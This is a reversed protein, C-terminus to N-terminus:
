LSAKEDSSFPRSVSHINQRFLGCVKVNHEILNYRCMARRSKTQITEIVGNEQEFIQIDLGSFSDNEIPVDEM